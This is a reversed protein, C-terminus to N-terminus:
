PFGSFDRKCLIEEFKSLICLNGYFAIGLSELWNWRSAGRLVRHFQMPKISTEQARAPLAPNGGFLCPISPFGTIEGSIRSIGPNRREPHLDQWKRGRRLVM